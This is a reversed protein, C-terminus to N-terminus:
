RFGLTHPPSLPPAPSPHCRTVGSEPHRRRGRGRRRMVAHISPAGSVSPALPSGRDSTIQDSDRGARDPASRLLPLNFSRSFTDM